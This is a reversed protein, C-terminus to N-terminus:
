SFHTFYERFVDNLIGMEFGKRALYGYQKKREKEDAEEPHPCRKKLLSYVVEAEEQEEMEDCSALIESSIGKQLLEYKMQKKSKRNGYCSIYASVYRADDLYHYSKVYEVAKEVAWPTYGNKTLKKVLEAETHDKATLLHLARLKARKLLIETQITRFQDESLEGGEELHFCAVEGKYLIFAPQEDTVIRYKQKTVPSVQLIM